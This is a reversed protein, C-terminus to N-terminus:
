QRSHKPPREGEVRVGCGQGGNGRATRASCDERRSCPAVCRALTIPSPHFWMVPPEPLHLAAASYSHGGRETGGLRESGDSAQNRTLTVPSPSSVIPYPSTHPRITSM